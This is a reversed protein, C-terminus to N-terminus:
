AVILQSLDIIVCQNGRTSVSKITSMKKLNMLSVETIEDFMITTNVITSKTILLPILGLSM